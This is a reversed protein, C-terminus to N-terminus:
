MDLNLKFTYSDSEKKLVPNALKAVGILNKDEDFIGVETIFVQKQFEDEYNCYDSHVTNKITIKDSEIYGGESISIQERWGADSSSVWTPNQSNNVEGAKAQAFLTMSPIKQTGNFSLSYMSASAYTGNAGYFLWSPNSLSGGPAYIDENTSIAISSTLLLFGENYLVVGLTTGAAAGMTSILEGNKKSDTAEDILTGTFYFKLNVSGKEIGNDYFISPVQIM